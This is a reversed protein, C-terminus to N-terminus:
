QAASLPIQLAKKLDEETEIGRTIAEALPRSTRDALKMVDKLTYGGKKGAVAISSQLLSRHRPNRMDFVMDVGDPRVLVLKRAKYDYLPVFALQNQAAQRRASIILSLLAGDYNNGAKASAMLGAHNAKHKIQNNVDQANMNKTPRARRAGKGKFQSKLGAALAAQTRGAPTPTSGTQRPQAAPDAATAPGGTRFSRQLAQELATPASPPTAAQRPMSMGGGTPGVGVNPTFFTPDTARSFGPVSASGYMRQYQEVTSGPYKALWQNLHERGGVPAPNERMRRQHEEARAQRRAAEQTSYSVGLYRSAPPPYYSEWNEGAPVTTATGTTSQPLGVPQNPNYPYAM